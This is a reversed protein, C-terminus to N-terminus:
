AEKKPTQKTWEALRYFSFHPSYPRASEDLEEFIFNYKEKLKELDCRMDNYEENTLDKLHKSDWKRYFNYAARHGKCITEQAQGCMSFDKKNRCFRAASTAFDARTNTSLHYYRVEFIETKSLQFVAQLEKKM